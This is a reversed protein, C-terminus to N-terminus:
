IRVAKVARLLPSKLARRGNSHVTGNFDFVGALGSEPEAFGSAILDFQKVALEAELPTLLVDRNNLPGAKGDLTLKGGGPMTLHVNQLTVNEVYAGPLAVVAVCPLDSPNSPDGRRAIAGINSRAAFSSSGFTRKSLSLASVAGATEERSPMLPM